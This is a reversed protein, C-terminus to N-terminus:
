EHKCTTLPEKTINCISLILTRFFIEEYQFNKRRGTGQEKITKCDAGVREGMGRGGIDKSFNSPFVLCLLM